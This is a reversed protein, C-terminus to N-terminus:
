HDMIGRKILEYVTKASILCAIRHFKDSKLTNGNDVVSKASFYIPNSLAQRASEYLAFSEMEFATMKRHQTKVDELISDEAIVASGSSTPAMKIEFSFEKKGRPLEKKTPVIECSVAHIFDEQKLIESIRLSTAHTLQVAYIEPIFGEDTWKGSDHQHCIDPIIVDYINAKGEIGACIGSMCILKPKFLDIARSCAIASSVLGMRAPSIILGSKNGIEIPKCKIGHISRPMGVEYGADAYADAEKELACIIVFDFSVEPTCSRVKNELAAEWDISTDSYIVVAIDLKNLNCYSGNALENYYTVALVPTDFNICEIDRISEVLRSSIDVSDKDNGFVPVKLDVVVLDFKEKNIEVIFASYNTVCRPTISTNSRNIVELIKRQKEPVDELILINM